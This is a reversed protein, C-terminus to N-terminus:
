GLMDFHYQLYRHVVVDTRVKWTQKDSASIFLFADYCTGAQLEWHPCHMELPLEAQEQEECGRGRRPEIVVM